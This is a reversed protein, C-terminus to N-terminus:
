KTISCKLKSEISSRLAAKVLHQSHIMILNGIKTIVSASANVRAHVVRIMLFMRKKKEKTISERSLSNPFLIALMRKIKISSQSVVPAVILVIRKFSERQM